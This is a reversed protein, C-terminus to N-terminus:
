IVVKKGALRLDNGLYKIAQEKAAAVPFDVLSHGRGEVDIAEFKAMHRLNLRAAMKLSLLKIQGNVM